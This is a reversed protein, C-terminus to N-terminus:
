PGEMNPNRIMHGVVSFVQVNQIRKGSEARQQILGHAPDPSIKVVRSTSCKLCEHHVKSNEGSLSCVSGKQTATRKRKYKRGKFDMWMQILFASQTYISFGVKVNASVSVKETQGPQQLLISYVPHSIFLLVKNRVTQSAPFDLMLTSASKTDVSPKGGPEGQYGRLTSASLSSETMEKILASIGNM